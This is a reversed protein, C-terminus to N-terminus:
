TSQNFDTEREDDSTTIEPPRHSASCLVPTNGFDPFTGGHVDNTISLWLESVGFVLIWLNAEGFEVSYPLRTGM